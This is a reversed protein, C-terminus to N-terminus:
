VNLVEVAKDDDNTSVYIISPGQPSECVYMNAININAEALREAMIAIPGSEGELTISVVTGQRISEVGHKMLVEKAKDINRSLVMYTETTSGKSFNLMGKIGIDNDSLARAVKALIGIENPFSFAIETVIEAKM